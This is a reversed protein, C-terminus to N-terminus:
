GPTISGVINPAPTYLGLERPVHPFMKCLWDPGLSSRSHSCKLCIRGQHLEAVEVKWNGKQTFVKIVFNAQWSVWGAHPYMPLMKM